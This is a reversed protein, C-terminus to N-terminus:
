HTITATLSLRPLMAAVRAMNERPESKPVDDALAKLAFRSWRQWQADQFYAMHATGTAPINRIRADSPGHYGRLGLWGFDHGPIMGGLRLPMDANSHIVILRKFGNKPFRKTSSWAPAFFIVTDFQAGQEMALCAVRAGNSHAILHPRRDQLSAALEAARERDARPNLVTERFFTFPLDFPHIHYGAEQLPKEFRLVNLKGTTRIGHLLVVSRNPQVQSAM